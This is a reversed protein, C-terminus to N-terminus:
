EVAQLMVEKPPKAGTWWEFSRAGQAVLMARGDVAKIGNAQADFMFATPGQTYFVDYALARRPAQYWDVPLHAGTMSASTANLVLQCESPVPSDVIQASLRLGHLLRELNTRTRNWCRLEFGAESLAVILAAAAGGAGLVLARSHLPVGLDRLTDMFGPADTNLAARDELRLTNVVGMRRETRPMQRAWRYAREKLPVTVNLGKYGLSTLHELAEDFEGQPVRVATYRDSMGLAEFAANQMKPSLSHEVPDGVVAYQLNPAERWEHWESM